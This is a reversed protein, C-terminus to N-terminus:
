DMVVISKFRVTRCIGYNELNIVYEKLDDLDIEDFDAYKRYSNIM